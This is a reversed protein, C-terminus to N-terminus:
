QCIVLGKFVRKKSGSKLGNLKEKLLEMVKKEYFINKPHKLASSEFRMRSTQIKREAESFKKEMKRKVEGKVIYLLLSCNKKVSGTKPGNVNILYVTDKKAKFITKEITQTTPNKPLKSTM